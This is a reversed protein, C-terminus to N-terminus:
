IRNEAIRFSAGTDKLNPGNRNARSTAVFMPATLRARSLLLARGSTGSTEAHDWDTTRSRYPEFDTRSSCCRFFLEPRSRVLEENTGAKQKDWASPRVELLGAVVDEKARRSGAGGSAM